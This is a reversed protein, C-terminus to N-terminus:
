VYSSVPNSMIRAPGSIALNYKFEVQSNSLTLVIFDTSRSRTVDGAYLLVGTSQIPYLIISITTTSTVGTLQHYQLHSMILINFLDEMM